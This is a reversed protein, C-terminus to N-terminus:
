SAAGYEQVHCNALYALLWIFIVMENKQAPLAVGLRM